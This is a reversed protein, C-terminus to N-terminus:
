EPTVLVLRAQYAGTARYATSVSTGAHIRQITEGAAARRFCRSKDFRKKPLCAITNTVVVERIPSATLREIPPDPSTGPSRLHRVGRHRREALCVEAAQTISGATDIEDDVIM